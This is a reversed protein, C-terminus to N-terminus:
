KLLYIKGYGNKFAKDASTNRQKITQGNSLLFVKYLYVGNALQDGFEDKGDWAYDTLNNGIRLAGLEDQTIERIVRGSVTLIQIKIEDPIEDGTLTFVFRVSTSFPNPYPYFNTISKENVVNFSIEFPEEGTSNGKLDEGKVLLYHLGDELNEEQIYIMFGREKSAPEWSVKADKFSLREYVCDACPRKIYFDVGLTDKKFLFKSEDKLEISILPKPSVIEGDIIHQGDFAVDIVPNFVDEEVQINNLLKLLNNDYNQEPQIKPNVFVKLSNPGQLGLTPISLEFATTDGPLPAQIKKSYSVASGDEENVLDYAVSLSDSFSKQSINVFKFNKIVEAGEAVNSVENEIQNLLIGEPPIQYEVLWHQLQSPILANERTYEVKTILEPYTLASTSSIDTNKNTTRFLEDESNDAKKGNVVMEWDSSGANEPRVYNEFKAWSIASGIPKSRIFGSSPIGIVIEDMQIEQEEKPDITAVVEIATGQAAGKKGLLILPEGNKINALTADTVGIETLKNLTTASWNEYQVQGISFFLVWDGAKINDIYAELYNSGGTVEAHTFNNIVQIRRGCAQHEFDNFIGLYPASTEQDFAVMNVTNDRCLRTEYIYPLGGILLEVDTYGLTPHNNGYTTVSVTVEETLYEIQGSLGITLNELVNESFQEPTRQTWGEPGNKIYTFSTRQWNDDEGANPAAYKSRWYYVLTDTGNDILAVEQAGVKNIDLQFSKKYPSNFFYSTDLEILVSRTNFPEDNTQAILSTNLVNVIGYNLPFVNDTGSKPIFITIEALNNGIDYEPIKNAPDINVVVRNEGAIEKGENKLAFQLLEANLVAGFSTHITTSTGDPFYRVIQVEVDATPVKGLSAIQVELLLSDVDANIESGDFTKIALGENKIEYDAKQAGFLNTAPDGLLIMQQLQTTTLDWVVNSALYRKSAEKQIEGITKSIFTEDAYGTAYFSESYRKLSNEFGFYSHAIFAIAGKDKTMLWDEGWTFSNSFVQGANCGNVLIAPYKGQNNYGHIPNSVYGIDIDIVSPSSHGYFTILNLGENVEDAINIFEVSSSTSKSQTTTSAGFYFDEAIAKFGNVYGEFRQLESARIGGSLHLLNKRWLANYPLDEMEILKDLYNAVQESSSATLRGTPIEFTNPDTGLGVSYVLDSGPLGATPVLDKYDFKEPNQRYYFKVSSELVATNILVSKGILFLYKDQTPEYFFRTMNFLAKPSYEGYNFQNYVEEAELVLTDYSGGAISARYGAMAKVPNAYAGSPTYLAKNSVIIYDAMGATLNRFEVKAISPIDVATSNLLLSRESLTNPVIANLNGGGTNNFNIQIPTSENTVDWILTADSGSQLELYSKDIPNPILQLLRSGSAPVEFTSHHNLRVYSLGALDNNGSVGLVDVRIIFDGQATMDTYNLAFVAKKFEYNSFALQGLSRLSSASSGIFVEVLHDQQNVGQLLVELEPPVGSNFFSPDGLANFVISEGEQKWQGTWGEGQDFQTKLIYTNTSKGPFYLEHLVDVRDTKAYNEAPLGGVNNEFFVEVRNGNVPILNWTLFYATTDSYLNYYTHPQFSKDIYLSSDAVGNNKKGYFLIYDDPDFSADEQGELHISQEVGRHYIQIRRPDVAGMPFGASLLTNYDIKYIGRAGIPIKFYTKNQDIWENGFDQAVGFSCALLFVACLITFRVKM